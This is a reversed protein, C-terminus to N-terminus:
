PSSVKQVKIASVISAIVESAKKFPEAGTRIRHRRAIWGFDTYAAWVQGDADTYVLIRVPWDLGALPEAKIFLTGLAPNGFILLSSPRTEIGAEAALKSQEVLMFFRIGKSEVDKRLREVTEQQNYASRVKVIGDRGPPQAATAALASGPAQIAPPLALSFAGWLITAASLRLTTTGIRSM